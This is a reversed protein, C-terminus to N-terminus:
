QTTDIKRINLINRVIHESIISTEVGTFLHVRIYREEKRTIMPM